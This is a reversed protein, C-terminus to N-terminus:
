SAPEQESVRRRQNKQTPASTFNKESQFAGFNSGSSLLGGRKLNCFRNGRFMYPRNLREQRQGGSSRQMNRSSITGQQVFSGQTRLPCKSKFHSMNSYEECFSPNVSPISLFTNQASRPGSPPISLAHIELAKLFPSHRGKRQSSTSTTETNINSTM